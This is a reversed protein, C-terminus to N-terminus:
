GNEKWPVTLQSTITGQLRGFAVGADLSLKSALDEMAESMMFRSQEALFELIFKHTTLEEKLTIIAPLQSALSGLWGKLRVELQQRRTGLMELQSNEKMAAANFSDTTIMATLFAGLTEGNMFMENLKAVVTSLRDALEQKSENPVNKNRSIDYQDFLKELETLQKEYSSRAATYEASDLSPFINNLNWVPFTESTPKAQTM